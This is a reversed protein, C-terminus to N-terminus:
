FEYSGDSDRRGYGQGYGHGYGHHSGGEKRILMWGESTEVMVEVKHGKKLEELGHLVKPEKRYERMLSDLNGAGVKKENRPNVVEFVTFPAPSSAKKMLRAELLAIRAELSALKLNFM